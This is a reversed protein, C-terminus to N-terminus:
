SSMDWSLLLGKRQPEKRETSQFSNTGLTKKEGGKEAERRRHQGEEEEEEETETARGRELLTCESAHTISFLDSQFSSLTTSITLALLIFLAKQSKLYTDLLYSISLPTHRTESQSGGRREGEERERWRQEGLSSHDAYVVLIVACEGDSHVLLGEM